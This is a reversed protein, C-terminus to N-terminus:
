TRVRRLLRIAALCGIALMCLSSPEPVCTFDWGYAFGQYVTLTDTAKDVAVLFTEAHFYTDYGLHDESRPCDYFTAGNQFPYIPVGWNPNNTFNNSIADDMTTEASGPPSLHPTRQLGWNDSVAQSWYWSLSALPDGTAATAYTAQIEVGGDIPNVHDNNTKNYDEDFTFFESVTLTGPLAGGNVISWQQNAPRGANWNTLALGLFLDDGTLPGYFGQNVYSSIQCIGDNDQACAKPGDSFNATDTVNFTWGWVTTPALASFLTLLLVAIPFRKAKSKM